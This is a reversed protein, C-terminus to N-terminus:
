SQRNSSSPSQMQRCQITGTGELSNRWDMTIIDLKLEMGWSVGLYLILKFKCIMDQVATCIDSLFFM